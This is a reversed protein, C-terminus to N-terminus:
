DFTKHIQMIKMFIHTLWSHMKKNQVNQTHTHTHQIETETISETDSAVYNEEDNLSGTGFAAALM